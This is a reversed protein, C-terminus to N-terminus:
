GQVSATQGAQSLIKVFNAESFFQTVPVTQAFVGFYDNIAQQQGPMAAFLDMIQQPPPELKGSERAFEYLPVSAADREAGFSAVVEDLSAGAALGDHVAESLLDADRFANSIGAATIPDMTLGADGVLAWGPGTAQRRFGRTSRTLWSSEQTGARVRAALSPALAEFEALMGTDAEKALAAYDEHHVCSGVLSQGENTPYVMLMRRPRSYFEMGESPVNSFYSWIIGEHRPHEDLTPAAVLRAITSSSGDAGIVIRCSATQSAGAADTWTVASVRGDSTVLERVRAGSEFEVGAERAADLLLSDLVMRRPCYAEDIGDAPPANGAMSMVGLDLTIKRLPPCGTARLRELLGWRALRAVGSQWLMHTSAQFDSPFSDADLLLVSHGHRALLMATSSGACRAGVIIVDYGTSQPM